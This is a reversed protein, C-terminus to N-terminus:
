YLNVKFPYGVFPFTFPPAVPNSSRATGYILKATVDKMFECTRGCHRWIRRRFRVELNSDQSTSDLTIEIDEPLEGNTFDHSTTTGEGTFVASDLGGTGTATVNSSGITTSAGGGIPTYSLAAIETAIDSLSHASRAEIQIEKDTTDLVVALPDADVADIGGTYDQDAATTAQTSRVQDITRGGIVSASSASGEYATTIETISSAATELDGLTADSAVQVVVFDGVVNIQTTDGEAYYLAYGNNGEAESGETLNLSIRLADSTDTYLDVYSQVGDVANVADVGDHFRIRVSSSEANSHNQSGALQAATRGNPFGSNEDAGGFYETGSSVYSGGGALYSAISGLTSSSRIRLQLWRQGTNSSFGNSAQEWSLRLTWNNGGAGTARGTAIFIRIGSTDTIFLDVYAQERTVADMQSVGSHFDVTNTTLDSINLLDANSRSTISETGDASGFYESELASDSPVLSSLLTDATTPITLTVVKATSDIDYGATLDDSRAILLVWDNGDTGTATASALKIRIGSTSTAYLDVYAPEELIEDDGQTVEVSWEDGEDVATLTEPLNIELDSNANAGDLTITPLIPDERRDETVLAWDPGAGEVTLGLQMGKKLDGNQLLNVTTAAGEGGGGGGGGGGGRNKRGSSLGM